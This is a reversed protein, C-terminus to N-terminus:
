TVSAEARATLDELVDIATPFRGLSGQVYEFKREISLWRRGLHEAAAGTTNSGAFPDFVLDGPDTLFRIFFDPIEEPMRAPHVTIGRERCYRLYESSARTNSVTLVNSAIAGGNDRNFSSKGINYESPRPGANYKGSKLLRRMSPSYDVLVKRNDAKPKPSTAFWWIHTYSDKLRIREINVWQAPAPLRAPNHWVLQQCLHFGGAEQFGLLAKIPLTSMEPRGPEWANGLEIVISGNPKLMSRFLKAFSCFWALYQSGTHNGYRKKKLLPFPPSTFILDVNGRLQPMLPSSAVRSADGFWSEGYLTRFARIM